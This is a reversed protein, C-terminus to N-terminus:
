KFSEAFYENLILKFEETNKDYGNAHECNDYIVFKSGGPLFKNIRISHSIPIRDDLKCHFLLVPRNFYQISEIGSIIDNTKIDYIYDVSRIIGFKLLKAFFEPIFTRSSVEATLLEPLDYFPSDSVIGKVLPDIKPNSIVITGGYSIGYLVIDKVNHKTEIHKISADLDKREIYALGLNKGESDGHARLDFTFVSFGMDYIDKILDLMYGDSKNSDVGHIMIVTQLNTNKIFWGNLRVLDETFFEEESYDLGVSMPTFEPIKRTAKIAMNTIYVSLIIYILLSLILIAM